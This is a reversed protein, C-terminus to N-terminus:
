ASLLLDAMKDINLQVCTKGGLDHIQKIINEAHRYDEAAHRELERVIRHYPTRKLMQSYAIFAVMAEYECALQQNLWQICEDRTPNSASSLHVNNM